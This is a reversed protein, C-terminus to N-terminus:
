KKRFKGSSNYYVKLLSNVNSSKGEILVKKM